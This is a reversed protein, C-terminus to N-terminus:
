IDVLRESQYMDDSVVASSKPTTQKSSM